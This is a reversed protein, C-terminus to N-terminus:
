SGNEIRGPAARRVRYLSGAIGVVLAIKVLEGPLFPVLGAGLAGKWGMRFLTALWACGATFMVAEGSVLAGILRLVSPSDEGSPRAEAVRGIVFAAAPYSLLYGATPGLFRAPGPPGFPQFVPLGALGELLYVGLALAARRPGLLLAVLMVGFTQGTIPVPTWPLPLALRACLVLLLNAAAVRLIDGSVGEGPIVRDALVRAQSM